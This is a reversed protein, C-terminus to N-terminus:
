EAALAFSRLSLPGYRFSEYVSEVPITIGRV